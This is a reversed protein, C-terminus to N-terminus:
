YNYSCAEHFLANVNLTENIILKYDVSTNIAWKEGSHLDIAM